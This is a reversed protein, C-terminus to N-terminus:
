NGFKGKCEKEKGYYYDKCIFLFVIQKKLKFVRGGTRIFYTFFAKSLRCIPAILDLLWKGSLTITLLKAESNICLVLVM